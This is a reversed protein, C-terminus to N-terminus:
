RAGAAERAARVADSLLRVREADPRCDAPLKPANKLDKRIADLKAGLTTQIGAFEDAKTRITASAASLDALAQNAVTLDSQARATTLAALQAGMRWGQATWGAAFLCLGAGALAVGRWPIAKAVVGLAARQIM